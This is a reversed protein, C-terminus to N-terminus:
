NRLMEAVLFALELSQQTNLRPDCASEYRGPLDVDTIDMAGGLCETVDEGTLEIHIGGPHTGLSRHVEFFGQVEDIVKDFHRTKYGNSATFTNGHMPDSQWIVKHGAAEVAEIVPPLATRVKDHGMRAVMTLRGPEKEPDLKRAYAVAEEPTDVLYGIERLFAEHEAPDPQGPNAKFHEDLKAQLEDRRALLEKNRPTFEKVIEAFGNWFEDANVGVTPLVENALFDHLVKAVQLGAVEIRETTDKPETQTM